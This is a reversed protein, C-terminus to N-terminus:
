GDSARARVLIQELRCSEAKRDRRWRILRAPHRFRAGDVQDFAVEAVREPRLPIWDHEMDPTWRAASGPLRGLPSPGITFGRRWPHEDLPVVLPALDDVLAVRDARPLQTVVGIHRLDGRGDYLGLLLSSVTGDQTPRVGAVVCEATRQIKVKIMARRGPEYRLIDPKAIVGDIGPCGELWPQAAIPDRTAPTVSVVDDPERLLEELATRRVPFPRERLDVSGDALADFAVYRAPSERSLREVRSAAPHLRSMLTAFADPGAVAVGESLMIEGDLVYGEGAPPHRSRGTALFGAVLEPFYRALPRDHRSRLDVTGPGVFALCRFGDWKPEYTYAGLPLERVLRALM